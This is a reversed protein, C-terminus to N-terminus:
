ELDITDRYSGDMPPLAQQQNQGPVPYPWPLMGPSQSRSADGPKVNITPGRGGMQSWMAMRADLDEAQQRHRRGESVSWAVLIAGVVLMLAIGACGGVLLRIENDTLAQGVRLAMGAGLALAFLLPSGILATRVCGGREKNM